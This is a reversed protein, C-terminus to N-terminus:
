PNDGNHSRGHAVLNSKQAFSKLCIDCKYPKEGTHSIKHRTFNSKSAFSKLCIDCKYLKEGTHSKEHIVSNSKQAFSKLCFSCKYPKVSLHSKVHTVLNSKETFSKLCIDCKFPKEGTHSREHIVLQTKKVFSKLCVDCKYPKKGTHSKEHTSLSSKMTYSKFCINCKFPKEGTHSREHTVQETKKSYSKFCTGCKCLKVGVHSESIDALNIKHGLEFHSSCTDLLPHEVKDIIEMKYDCMTAIGERMQDPPIKCPVPNKSKRSIYAQGADRQKKRKADAWNQLASSEQTSLKDDVHSNCVNTITNVDTEDKWILDELLVEEPKIDLCENLRLKSTENSQICVNRFSSLLKLNSDCSACITNPLGDDEGVQLQCCTWIRRVLPHPNDHISISSEAPASCLCLRCEM